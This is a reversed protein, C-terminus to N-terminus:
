KRGELERIADVRKKNLISFFLKSFILYTGIKNIDYASPPTGQALNIGLSFVDNSVRLSSGMLGAFAATEPQKLIHLYIKYMPPKDEGKKSIKKEQRNNSRRIEAHSNIFEAYM